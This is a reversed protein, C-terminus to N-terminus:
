VIQFLDANGQVKIGIIIIIRENRRLVVDSRRWPAPLTGVIRKLPFIEPLFTLCM